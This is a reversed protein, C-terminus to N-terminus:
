PKKRRASDINERTLEHGMTAVNHAKDTGEITGLWNLRARDERLAANQRKLKRVQYQLIEYDSKPTCRM